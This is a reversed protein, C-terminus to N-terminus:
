RKGFQRGAFYAVIVSIAGIGYGCLFANLENM